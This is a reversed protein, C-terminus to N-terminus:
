QPNGEEAVDFSFIKIMSKIMSQKVKPLPITENLVTSMSTMKEAPNGCPVILSSLELSDSSVNLAFGHWAVWRSVAVGISAIKEDGVWVGIADSRARSEIGFHKLTLIIADELMHVYRHITRGQKILKMIPYCVLQGPCHYTVQGGRTSKHIEIGMQKLKEEDALIDDFSGRRGLTIVPPDHELLLLYAQSNGESLVKEVLRQQIICAQQYRVKGLDFYTLKWM